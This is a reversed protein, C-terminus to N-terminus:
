FRDNLSPEGAAVKAPVEAGSVKLEEVAVSISFGGWLKLWNLPQSCTVFLSLDCLASFRYPRFGRDLYTSLFVQFWIFSSKPGPPTKGLFSGETLRKARFGM